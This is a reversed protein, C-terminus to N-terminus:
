HLGPVSGAIEVIIFTPVRAVVTFTTKDYVSLPLTKARNAITSAADVARPVASTRSQILTTYGVVVVIAHLISRSAATVM